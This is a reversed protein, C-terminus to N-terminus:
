HKGVFFDVAANVEELNILTNKCPGEPRSNVISIIPIQSPVDRMGAYLERECAVAIIGKPKVEKLLSRAQSGGTAIYLQINREAGYQNLEKKAASSLCRPVLLLLQDKEISKSLIRTLSNNIKLLSSIIKDEPIGLKSGIYISFNNIFLKTVQKDKLFFAFPKKTKLTIILLGLSFINIFTITGAAWLVMTNGSQMILDFYPRGLFYLGWAAATILFSSFFTLGLFLSHGSKLNENNKETTRNWGEWQQELKESDFDMFQGYKNMKDIGELIDM